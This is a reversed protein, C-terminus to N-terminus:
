VKDFFSKSSHMGEKPNKKFGEDTYRGSVGIWESHFVLLYLHVIVLIAMAVFVVIVGVDQTVVFQYASSLLEKM